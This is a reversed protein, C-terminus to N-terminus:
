HRIILDAIHQKLAGTTLSSGAVQKPINLEDIKRGVVLDPLANNVGNIYNASVKHPNNGTISADTIIDDAVTVSITIKESGSHYNYTVDETYTGDAIAKELSEQVEVQAPKKDAVDLAVQKVPLKGSGEPATDDDAQQQSEISADVIDSPTGQAPVTNGAPQVACGAILLSLAMCLVFANLLAAAAKRM